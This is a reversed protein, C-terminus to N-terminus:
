ILGKKYAKSVTHPADNVGLRNFVSRIERQVTRENVFLAGAVM